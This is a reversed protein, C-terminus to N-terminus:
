LPAPRITLLAISTSAPALEHLLQVRKAEMEINLQTLGTLNGGPRSLSAVLDATLPERNRLAHDRRRGWIWRSLEILNDSPAPADVVGDALRM